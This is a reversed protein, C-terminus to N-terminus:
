AVRQGERWVGRVFPVADQYSVHVLDARKGEALTGRDHLGAAQAPTKSVMRIADALAVHDVRESLMFASYLLSFPIYDSSLVDLSGAEALTQASVNGSHSGGRVVNPAGMLVKMGAQRAADAAEVTTPFEAIHVKHGIAEDVHAVTADDHSALVIGAAHCQEAIMTRNKASWVSALDMRDKMFTEFEADNMGAKNQHFDRYKQLSVFQRQGPTHDMLSAIRVLPEDSFLAFGPAVDETSVECRLHIFHDARLRGSSQAEAIGDALIRMDKSTIRAGYDMGLRLADFVTTIGSAAVQADHAQVAAVANWRVGPRPAYHTELHDTHLEVLGPLLYDGSEPTTADVERDIELRSIHGDEIKLSGVVVRDELVLQVNEFPTDTMM